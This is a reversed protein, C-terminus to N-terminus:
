GNSITLLSFAIHFLFRKKKWFVAKYGKSVFRVYMLNFFFYFCEGLLQFYYFLFIFPQNFIIFQWFSQIIFLQFLIIFVSFASLYQNKLIPWRCMMQEVELYGEFNSLVFTWVGIDIFLFFVMYFNISFLLCLQLPTLLLRLQIWCEEM